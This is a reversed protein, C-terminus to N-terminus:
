EQLVTKSSTTRPQCNKEKLVRKCFTGTRRAEMTESSFEADHWDNNGELTSYKQPQKLM